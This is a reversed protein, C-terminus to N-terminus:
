YVSALGQKGQYGFAMSSRSEFEQVTELSKM